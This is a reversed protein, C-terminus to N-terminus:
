EKVEEKLARLQNVIDDFEMYDCTNFALEGEEYNLKSNEIRLKGLQEFHELLTDILKEKM